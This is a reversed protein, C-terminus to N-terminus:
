RQVNSGDLAVERLVVLSVLDALRGVVRRERCQGELDRGIGVDTLEREETHVRPGKRATAVDEVGRAISTLPDASDQLHVRVLPLLPLLYACAVDCRRDPELVHTGTVGKAM